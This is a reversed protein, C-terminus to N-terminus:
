IPIADRQKRYSVWDGGQILKGGRPPRNLLYIWALGWPTALQLRNYVRPYEELHDLKKFIAKNIAYIEGVLCQTGAMAGPYAGLDWLRYQPLTQFDAIKRAMKLYFSNCEETRLSGYVFVLIDM